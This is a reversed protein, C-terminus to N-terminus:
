DQPSQHTRLPSLICTDQKPPLTELRGPPWLCTFRECELALLPKERQECIRYHKGPGPQNPDAKNNEFSKTIPTQCYSSERCLTQLLGLTANSPAVFTSPLFAAKDARRGLDCWATRKFFTGSRRSDCRVGLTAEGIGRYRNRKTGNKLSPM